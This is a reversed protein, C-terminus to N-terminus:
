MGPDEDLFEQTKDKTFPPHLLKRQRRVCVIIGFVFGLLVGLLMCGVGVGAMRSPFSRMEDSIYSERKEQTMWQHLLNWTLKEYEKIAADNSSYALDDGSWIVVGSMELDRVLHYKLLLSHYDEFYLLHMRGEEKDEHVIYPAMVFKEWSHGKVSEVKDPFKKVLDGLTIEERANDYDCPLGDSMNKKLDCQNKEKHYSKCTYNFGHWPVGLFFKKLEFGHSAYEDLGLVLKTFPILPRAKCVESTSIFSKSNLVFGECHTMLSDVLNYLVSRKHEKFNDPTWPLLCLMKSGYAHHDLSFRFHKLFIAVNTLNLSEEDLIDLFDLLVYDAFLNRAKQVTTSIWVLDKGDDMLSSFNSLHSIFGYGKGQKHAYCMLEVDPEGSSIVTSVVDWRWKKWTHKDNSVVIVEKTYDNRGQFPKRTCSAFESCKCFPPNDIIGFDPRLTNSEIAFVPCAILSTWILATLLEWCHFSKSM